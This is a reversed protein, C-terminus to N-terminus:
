AIEVKKYEPQWMADWVQQVPDTIEAQALGEAVAEKVVATAVIQSVARLNELDPLLSAGPVHVDVIGALAKSAAAFMRDSMRSARAVITGLGLGPFLLANNAQGIKYSIGNYEVPGFPSGTAVLARGNTWNILDEPRAEALKTPNSLPFIVPREVHEAMSQVIGKSFVGAVTSTGILVTPHVERVTEAFSVGDWKTVEKAPRAYPVQFDRLQSGMDDTLLGKRGCCWFKAFAASPSIGEQEMAFRIQDAIGIGASGSGFIV